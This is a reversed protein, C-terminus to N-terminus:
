DAYVLGIFADYRRQGAIKSQKDTQLAVDVTPIDMSNAHIRIYLMGTSNDYGLIEFRADAPVEYEEQLEGTAMNCKNGTLPMTTMYPGSHCRGLTSYQKIHGNNDLGFDYDMMITGMIDTRLRVKFHTPDLTESPTSLLFETFVPEDGNIDFIYTAFDEGESDMCVLLYYKGGVCMVYSPGFQDIEEMYEMEEFDLANYTFPQGDIRITLHDVNYGNKEVSISLEELSGDGNFDWTLKQSNDILLTYNEPTAGFYEMSFVDANGVVPIKVNGIMVGDYTLGFPFPDEPNLDLNYDAEKGVTALRATALDKFAATDLLVDKVLIDSGDSAKYNVYVLNPIIDEDLNTYGAYGVRMSLMQSDARVIECTSQYYYKFLEEGKNEREVFADLKQEYRAVCAEATHWVHQDLASVVSIPGGEAHVVDYYVQVYDLQRYENEMEEKSVAGYMMFDQDKEISVATLDHTLVLYDTDPAETESTTADTEPDTPEDTEDTEMTDTVQTTKKTKKKKKKKTEETSKCAVCTFVTAVCLLAAAIKKM